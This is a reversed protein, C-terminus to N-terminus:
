KKACHGCLAEGHSDKCGPCSVAGGFHCRCPCDQARGDKEM